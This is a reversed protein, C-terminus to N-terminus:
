RRERMSGNVTEQLPALHKIVTVPLPALGRSEPVRAWAM